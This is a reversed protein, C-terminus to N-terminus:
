DGDPVEEVVKLRDIPVRFSRACHADKVTVFVDLDATMAPEITGTMFKDGWKFSVKTGVLARKAQLIKNPLLSSQGRRILLDSHIREIRKRITDLETQNM